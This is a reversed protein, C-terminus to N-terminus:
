DKTDQFRDNAVDSPKCRLWHKNAERANDPGWCVGHEALADELQGSADCARQEAQATELTEQDDGHKTCYDSEAADSRILAQEEPTFQAGRRSSSEAAHLSGSTLSSLCLTVSLLAWKEFSKRM